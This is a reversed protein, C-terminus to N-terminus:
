FDISFMLSPQLIWNEDAKELEIEKMLYASATLRINRDFLMVIGPNLYFYGAYDKIETDSDSIQGSGSLYNLFKGKVPQFNIVESRFYGATLFLAAINEIMTKQVSANVFPFLSYNKGEAYYSNVREPTNDKKGEYDFIISNASYYYQQYLIGLDIRFAFDPQASFFGTGVIFNWLETKDKKAFRVSYFGALHESFAMDYDVGIVYNTSAITSNYKKKLNLTDSFDYKGFYNPKLSPNSKGTSNLMLIPTITADGVKKDISYHTVPPNYPLTIEADVLFSEQIVEKMCGQLAILIIICLLFSKNMIRMKALRNKSRTM